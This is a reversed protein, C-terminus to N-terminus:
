PEDLGGSEYIDIDSGSSTGSGVDVTYFHIHENGILPYRVADGPAVRFRKGVDGNPIVILDQTYRNYCYLGTRYPYRSDGYQTRFTRTQASGATIASPQHLYPQAM